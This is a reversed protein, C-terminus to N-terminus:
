NASRQRLVEYLMLGCAVSVNLSSVVGSMPISLLQDCQSKTLDRLGAGESGVIIATSDNYNPQWYSVEANESTGYVWFGIEKIRSIFQSINSVVAINTKQLAGSSVKGIVPSDMNVRNKSLVVMDVDAANATRLCAGINRPDDLDDLILVLSGENQSLFQISSKLDFFENITIKAAIGQHKETSLLESLFSKDVRIINLRSAVKRTLLKEIRKNSSSKDVYLDIISNPNKSVSTEVSNFGYITVEKSM